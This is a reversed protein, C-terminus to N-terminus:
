YLLNITAPGQIAQIQSGRQKAYKRDMNCVGSLQLFSTLDAGHLGQNKVLPANEGGLYRSSNKDMLSPLKAM